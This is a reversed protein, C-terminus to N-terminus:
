CASWHSCGRGGAWLQRAKEDQVAEPADAANRYGGFGAWTGRTIQWKGSATSGGCPSRRGAWGYPAYCGGNWVRIDGRSERRMVWCPPLGAGCQGSPYALAALRAAEVAAAFEVTRRWQEDRWREVAAAYEVTARWQADAAAAEAASRTKPTPPDAATPAVMSASALLVALVAAILFRLTRHM